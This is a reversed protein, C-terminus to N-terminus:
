QVGNRVINNLPWKLDNEVCIHHIYNQRSPDFDDHYSLGWNEDEDKLIDVNVMRLATKTMTLNM